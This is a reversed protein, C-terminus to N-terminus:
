AAQKQIDMQPLTYDIRTQWLQSVLTDVEPKPFPKALGNYIGVIECEINVKSVRGLATGGFGRLSRNVGNDVRGVGLAAGARYISHAEKIGLGIMVAGLPAGARGGRWEPHVMLFEMTLVSSGKESLREFYEPQFSSFYKVDRVSPLSLDYLTCMIMAAIQDQSLVVLISDQRIFDDANVYRPDGGANAMEQKWSQKWFHYVDKYSPNPLAGPVPTGPFVIYQLSPSANSSM